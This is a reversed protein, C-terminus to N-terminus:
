WEALQKRIKKREGPKLGGWVGFTEHKVGYERCRAIVPCAQCMQVAWEVTSWEGANTVKAGTEGYFADSWTSACPVQEPAEEIAEMLAAHDKAATEPQLLGVDENVFM